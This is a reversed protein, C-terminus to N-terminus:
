IHILSLAEEPDLLRDEEESNDFLPLLDDSQKQPADFLVPQTTQPALALRIEQEHPPFCIGQDACGQSRAKLLLTEGAGQIRKLPIEARAKNRYVAVDGFFEDNKIKAESLDPSGLEFGINDTEFRIKDRYMYYGDAIRWEVILRDDVSRGSIQFAQDPMLLEDENWLAQTAGSLGLLLLLTILFYRNKHM